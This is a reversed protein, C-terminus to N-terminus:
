KLLQSQRSPGSPKEGVPKFDDARRRAEALETASLFLGMEKWLHKADTNDSRMALLIWQGAAANDRPVIKGEYLFLGLRYQAQTHGQGAARALWRLVEKGAKEGQLQFLIRAYDYQSSDSGQEAAKLLWRLGEEYHEPGQDFLGKAMGIQALLDGSEALKELDARASVNGSQSGVVTKMTAIKPSVEERLDAPIEGRDCSLALEIHRGSKAFDGLEAYVQGLEMHVVANSPSLAIAQQLEALAPKLRERALEMRAAAEHVDWTEAGTKRVKELEQGAESFAKARAAGRVFQLRTWRDDPNLKLGMRLRRIDPEGHPQMAQHSIAQVDDLVKFEQYPVGITRWTPDFLYGQGKVFLTAVDHYCPLGDDDRDVHVLWADMGLSRAMSVLLKAYEQCSFRTQLNTSSKLAEAATRIGGDGPGRGRKSVDAFLAFARPVENSLGITLRKAEATIEPTVALPNVVLKREDPTLRRELEVNLEAPTFSRPRELAAHGGSAPNLTMSDLISRVMASDASKPGLLELERGMIEFNCTRLAAGLLAVNALNDDEPLEKVTRLLERAAKLEGKEARCCALFITTTLEDPRDACAQELIKELDDWRTQGSLLDFMERAATPCGRHFRLAERLEREAGKLDEKKWQIMAAAIHTDCCEPAFRIYNAISDEAESSKGAKDLAEALFRHAWGCKPEEALLQRSAGELESAPADESRLWLVRALLGMAKESQPMCKIWRQFDDDPIARDLSTALRLVLADPLGMWGPSTVTIVTPRAMTNTFALKAQVIWENTKRLFKGWIIVNANLEAAIELAAKDNPSAPKWGTRTTVEKVKEWRLVDSRPASNLCSRLLSPLAREWDNWAPDGTANEFPLILVRVRSPKSDSSSSATQALASSESWLLA